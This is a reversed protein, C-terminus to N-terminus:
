CFRYVSNYVLIANSRLLEFELSESNGILLGDWGKQAFLKNIGIAISRFQTNERFNQARNHRIELGM